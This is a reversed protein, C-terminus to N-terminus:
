TMERLRALVFRERGALDFRVSIDVYCDYVSLAEVVWSARRSDVELALWGGSELVDRADRIIRRITTMGDPGGFLAVAPEWDRVGAPLSSVEGDAIYPPNSVVLVAREGCFPALVSGCRFELRAQDAPKLRLANARAVDLADASIDGALVRDFAGESALALAIAGSGTGIDIAVGGPRSKMLELVIEVLLETEPRPILVREDVALMLRRFAASRVAYAFPAGRARRTAAARAVEREAASMVTHGNVTTGFRPADRLAAIIDRAERGPDVIGAADLLMALEGLLAGVTTPEDVRPVQGSRLSPTTAEATQGSGTASNVGLPVSASSLFGRSPDKM